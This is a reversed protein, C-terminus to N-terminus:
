SNQSLEVTRYVLSPYTGTAPVVFVYERYETCYFRPRLFSVSYLTAYVSDQRGPLQLTTNPSARSHSIHSTRSSNALAFTTLTWRCSSGRSSRHDHLRFNRRHLLRTLMERSPIRSLAPASYWFCRSYFLCREHTARETLVQEQSAM